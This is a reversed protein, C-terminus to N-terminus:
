LSAGFTITAPSTRITIVANSYGVTTGALAVANTGIAEVTDAAKAAGAPAVVNADVTLTGYVYVTLDAHVGGGTANTLTYNDIAVTTGPEPSASLDGLVPAVVTADMPVRGSAFVTASGIVIVSTGEIKASGAFSVSVQAAVFM